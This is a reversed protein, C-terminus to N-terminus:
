VPLKKSTFQQRGYYRGLELVQSVLHYPWEVIKTYDYDGWGGDVYYAANPAAIDSMVLNILDDPRCSHWGENHVINEIADAASAIEGKFGFCYGMMCHHKVDHLARFFDYAVGLAHGASRYMVRGRHYDSRLSEVEGYPQEPLGTCQMNVPEITSMMHINFESVCVPNISIAPAKLWQEKLCEALQRENIRM